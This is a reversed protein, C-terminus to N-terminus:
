KIAEEWQSFVEPAIYSGLSVAPTNGLEAAVVTAVAKRSKKFATKTTPLPMTRIMDLATKTGLYTRFDKIVFKRSIKRMFSRVEGGSTNFLPQDSSKSLFKRAFIPDDITKQIRVGKKGIFDFHVKSGDITVHQGLLTSAGYAKKAAKTDVSSGIRFGTKSILDLVLAEEKHRKVGTEIKQLIQPLAVTFSSLRKFKSSSARKRQTVSYLYVKRNKSDLGIAQLMAGRATAVMVNHWGPPIRVKGPTWHQGPLLLTMTARDVTPTLM